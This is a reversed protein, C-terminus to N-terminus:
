TCKDIPEIERNKYGNSNYSVNEGKQHTCKLNMNSWNCLYILIFMEKMRDSKSLCKNDNWSSFYDYFIM